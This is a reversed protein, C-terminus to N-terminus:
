QKIVSRVYNVKNYTFHVFYIGTNLGSIDFDNSEQIKKSQFVVKGDSSIIKINNCKEPYNVKVTLKGSCPNPYVLSENTNNIEILSTWELFCDQYNNNKYVQINDKYSCLIVANELWLPYYALFNFFNNPGISEIFKLTDGFNIPENLLINKNGEFLFVTDVICWHTESIFFTDNKNLTLDMITKEEGDPFLFWIKGIITDERLYGVKQINPLDYEYVPKYLKANITTDGFSKYIITKLYDPIERKINWQTADNGFISKYPQAILISPLILQALFFIFVIKYIKM